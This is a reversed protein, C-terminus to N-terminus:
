FELNFCSAGYMQFHGPPSGWMYYRPQVKETIEKWCHNLMRPDKEGKYIPPAEAQPYPILPNGLQPTNYKYKYKQRYEKVAPGWDPAPKLLKKIRQWCVFWLM